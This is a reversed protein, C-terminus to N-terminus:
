GPETYINSFWDTNRPFQDPTRESLPRELRIQRVRYWPDVRVNSWTPMQSNRLPIDPIYAQQGRVQVLTEVAEEYLAEISKPVPNARRLCLRQCAIVTAWENVLWSNALDSSDYLQQAYLNVKSTAYNVLNTTLYALEEPTVTGSSDDDLRADVGYVSLLAVVDASTCYTYTLAAPPM